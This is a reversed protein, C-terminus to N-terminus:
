RWVLVILERSGFDTYVSYERALIMKPRHRPAHLRM